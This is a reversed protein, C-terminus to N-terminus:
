GVPRIMTDRGEGSQVLTVSWARAPVAPWFCYPLRRDPHLEGPARTSSRTPPETYGTRRDPQLPSATRTSFDDDPKCGRTPSTGRCHSSPSSTPSCGRVSWRAPTSCRTSASSGRGRIRDSGGRLRAGGGYLGVRGHADVRVRGLGPQAGTPAGRHGPVLGRRRLPHRGGVASCRPVGPAARDRRRCRGLGHRPRAGRGVRDAGVWGGGDVDRRYRRLDRRPRGTAHAAVRGRVLAAPPVGRQNRVHGANRRRLDRAGHHGRRGPGAAILFPGGVLWAFFAAAHLWGRLRPREGRNDASKGQEGQAMVTVHGGGRAGASGGAGGERRSIGLLFLIADLYPVSLAAAAAQRVVPKANFAIGLGAAALMDIDNAGDGVVITRALPVGAVAAFSALATAKGARDVITGDLEGTM